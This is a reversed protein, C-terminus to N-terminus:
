AAEQFTQLVEMLEQQTTENESTEYKQAAVRPIIIRGNTLRVIFRNGANYHELYNGIDNKVKRVASLIGRVGIQHEKTKEM